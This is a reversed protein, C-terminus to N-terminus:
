ASSVPLMLKELAYKVVGRSLETGLKRQCEALVYAMEVEEM